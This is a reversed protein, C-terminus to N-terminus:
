TKGEPIIKYNQEAVLRYLRYGEGHAAMTAMEARTRAQIDNDCSHEFSQITVHDGRVLMTEALAKEDETPHRFIDILYLM